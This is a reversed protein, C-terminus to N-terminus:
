LDILEGFFDDDVDVSSSEEPKYDSKRTPESSLFKILTVCNGRENYSVEDVMARALYIGWGGPRIRDSTDELDEGQMLKQIRLTPDPINDFDFGEGEDEIDIVLRDEYLTYSVRVIKDINEKNGHEVANIGLENLVYELNAIEDDSLNTTRYLQRVMENVEQIYKYESQLTFTIKQQIHDHEIQQQRHKLTNKITYFIDNISFPKTIYEDAGTRLGILKDEAKKKASVIIVPIMNYKRQTKLYTCVEYGDM